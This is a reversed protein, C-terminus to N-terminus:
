ADIRQAKVNLDREARALIVDCRSPEKEIMACRRGMKEAAILTSGSGGFGDFVLAGRDSSNQIMECLMDVNKAANHLREDGAPKPFRLINPRNVTRQGTENDGRMTAQKPLKAFFAVLEFTNAYSSGLGGGGKDWVLMNKPSLEARKGAEWIAAWSRWDCFLYAHGFKPLIAHAIKWVSEFFPRVMADDAIDSAVGTSSGYIAYPPDELVLDATDEGIVRRANDILLSDGCLLRSGGVQWIEGDQCRPEVVLEDEDGGGTEVTVREREHRVVDQRSLLAALGTAEYVQPIVPAVQSLVGALNDTYHGQAKPNNLGVNLARQRTEDLDLVAVAVHTVGQERLWKIRQHGSVLEGTRRNYVLIEVLGFEALMGDLAKRAAKKIARPNERADTLVEIPLQKIWIGNGRVTELGPAADIIANREDDTLPM